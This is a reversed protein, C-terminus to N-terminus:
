ANDSTQDFLYLYQEEKKRMLLIESKKKDKYGCLHLAGHFLVRYMENKYTKGHVVANEKVRDTSVYIEAEIPEGKESLPFTIIDTYFDHQLFDRNIQLLFEDSCFVYTISNFSCKEKIFLTRIFGKLGTRGSLTLSRDASRFSVIGM